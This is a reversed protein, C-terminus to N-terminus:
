ELFAELGQLGGERGMGSGGLGGFPSAPNFTPQSNAWVTGTKLAKAVKLAKSGKDTWVGASLGNSLANAQEIAEAITRFSQLMLIPGRINEEFQHKGTVLTPACWFGKKPLNHSSQHLFNGDAKANELYANFATLHERYPVPGIDTNRALPDGVILNGMRHKLKALVSEYISEQVFLTPGTPGFPTHNLFTGNIAGEVAQDIAADEFIINCSMEDFELLSKKGSHICSRYIGKGIQSNGTFSIHKTGAHNVMAERAKKTGTVINVVGAPVGAEQITEALKLLPISSTEAPNLVVTNGCALAPAIRRAAMVMPSHWPVIQGCVGVPQIKKHPFAHTLKDAWGAYHFFCASALPIDTGMCDRLPKGTALSQTVALERANERILLAIRFLYKGREVGSTKGWSKKFADRASEVARDVDKENAEAIKSLKEENAPNIATFYKESDADKFEGNIFLGHKKRIKIDAIDEPADSYKM